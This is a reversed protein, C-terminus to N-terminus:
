KAHGSCSPGGGGIGTWEGAKRARESLRSESRHRVQLHDVQGCFVKGFQHCVAIRLRAVADERMVHLVLVHHAVRNRNGHLSAQPRGQKWATPHSHEPRQRVRRWM